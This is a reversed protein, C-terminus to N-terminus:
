VNYMQFCTAGFFINYEHLITYLPYQSHNPFINWHSFHPEWSPQPSCIKMIVKTQNHHFYQLAHPTLPLYSLQLELVLLLVLLCVTNKLVEAGFLELSFICGITPAWSSPCGGSPAVIGWLAVGCAQFITFSYCITWYPSSFFWHPMNQHNNSFMVSCILPLM